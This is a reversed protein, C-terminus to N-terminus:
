VAKAKEDKTEDEKEEEEEENQNSESETLKKNREEEELKRQMELERKIQKASKLVGIKILYKEPVWSLTWELIKRYKIPQGKGYYQYGEDFMTRQYSMMYIAMFFSSLFFYIIVFYFFFYITTLRSSVRSMETFQIHGIGLLFTDVLANSYSNMTAIHAGYFHMAVISFGSLFGFFIVFYSFLWANAKEIARLFVDFKQHFRLYAMTKAILFAMM